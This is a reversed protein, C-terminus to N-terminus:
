KRGILKLFDQEHVTPVGFEKAKKFKSGPSEGVVVYSTKKSVADSVSGGLARIKERAEDRSLSSLEGTLVFTKGKFPGSAISARGMELRIGVTHLKELLREHRPEKFWAHISEAVKPGIGQIAQLDELSFSKFFQFLTPIEAEKGQTRRSERFQEALLLATEEGVHLIGLAFFFRAAPVIRKDRIETILNKASKEGFRELAAIDKEQLTFLDAADSILGEDLLRDIIKQGLGEINLAGRSVFHYLFERERAGCKPNSCRYIAGDRTVPASDFPCHAPMHFARERGTRLETLVRMVKPIVDGARGVVVTDGIELGLRRIEDANHLTAHSVTVGGVEVPELEAVPTLAGTRGIQVHIDQIRTTAEKPSFKYAIAARPAKGVVGAEEYWANHNLTVVIGDIEYPLKDRKQIVGKYFEFVEQLSHAVAGYPNVPIGYRKLAQYESERTRYQKLYTEGKGPIGYAYFTLKRSATVKPDLQRLSGAALNRPNSYTKEGAKTLERNIRDFEQKTLFTEGRVVLREPPDHALSLPIAEVTKLNQTIDEGRQGDGRTAGQVLIGKEYALEVALGDMKVDCYFEAGIKKQLYNELREFWDRVDQETFADNLSLMPSDRAEGDRHVVKAFEKQPEGGVRQTPSDPTILEPFKQELNFLEHKLSDLAEDSILSRDHVHYSRRYRVIASRLKQIRKKAENNQM